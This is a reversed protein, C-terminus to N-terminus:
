AVGSLLLRCNWVPATAPDAGTRFTRTIPSAASAPGTGFDLLLSHAMVRADAQSQCHGWRMEPESGYRALGVAYRPDADEAADESAFGLSHRLTEVDSPAGTLFKWGPGAGSWVAWTNLRGRSDREPTRAISYFFLDTGVRAGFLRQLTALNKTV